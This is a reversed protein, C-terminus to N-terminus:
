VTESQVTHTGPRVSRPSSESQNSTKWSPGSVRSRLAASGVDHLERGESPPAAAPEVTVGATRQVSIGWMATSVVGKWALRNRQLCKQILRETHTDCVCVSWRWGKCRVHLPVEQSARRGLLVETPTPAGGCARGALRETCSPMGCAPLATGDLGGQAQHQQPRSRSAGPAGQRRTRGDSAPCLM